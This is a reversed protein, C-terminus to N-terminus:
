YKDTNEKYDLVELGHNEYGKDEGADKDMHYQTHKAAYYEALYYGLLALVEGTLTIYIKIYNCVANSYAFGITSGIAGWM